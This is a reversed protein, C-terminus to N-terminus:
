PGTWELAMEVGRAAWYQQRNPATFKDTGCAIATWGFKGVRWIRYFISVGSTVMEWRWHHNQLTSGVSVPDGNLLNPSEGKIAKKFAHIHFCLIIKYVLTTCTSFM